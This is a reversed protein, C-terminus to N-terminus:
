DDNKLMYSFENMSRRVFDDVEEPLYRTVPTFRIENKRSFTGNTIVEKFLWEFEFGVHFFMDWDERNILSKKIRALRPMRVNKSDILQAVFTDDNIEVVRGEWRQFDQVFTQCTLTYDMDVVSEKYYKESRVVHKLLSNEDDVNKRSHKSLRSVSISPPFVPMTKPGSKFYDDAEMDKTDMLHRNIKKM